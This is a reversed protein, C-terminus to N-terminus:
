APRRFELSRVPGLAKSSKMHAARTRSEWVARLRRRWFSKQNRWGGEQMHVGYEGFQHWQREDCVDNPFLVHVPSAANQFEALTRSVVGPGTTDFVYFEERFLRPISKWMAAPWGPDRQARVCNEIVAALFPHGAAAGFAYNGIEWDMGYSDRLFTHLSLEEFPFVCGHACLDSLGRALFIDLDFYFGGHHYIALYRFFDFKQIRFPFGDFVRRHQPFHTDIFQEVDVDDFFLYEFEPNQSRVSAASARAVMPLDRTKGTQIIRKPISDAM